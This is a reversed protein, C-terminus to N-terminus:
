PRDKRRRTGTPAARCPRPCYPGIPPAPCGQRLDSPSGTAPSTCGSRSGPTSATAASDVSSRPTPPSGARGRRAAHVDAPDLFGPDAELQPRADDDRPRRRVARDGAPRAAPAEVDADPLEERTAAGLAELDLEGSAVIQALRVFSPARYGARVVDRYFREDQSAMAEPTPFAAHLPDRSRAGARRARHRAGAGDLGDAGPATPRASRRSSTRGSRRPASCGGAGTTAWALDPDDAAIAYFAVLDHDLHLVRAVQDRDVRADGGVAPLRSRGSARPAARVRRSRSAARSGARCGSRSGRAHSGGRRAVAPALDHFGHSALTRWLDVPEGSPGRLPILIDDQATM